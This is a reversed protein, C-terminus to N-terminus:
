KKRSAKIFKNVSKAMDSADFYIRDTTTIGNKDTYNSSMNSYIGAKTVDDYWEYEKGALDNSKRIAVLEASYKDAAVKLRENWDSIEKETLTTQKEFLGAHKAAELAQKYNKYVESKLVQANLDRLKDETMAKADNLRIQSEDLRKRVENVEVTSANMSIISDNLAISSKAQSEIFTGQIKANETLQKLNNTSAVLNDKESPTLEIIRDAEANGKRSGAFKEMAGAVTNPDFLNALISAPNSMGLLSASSAPSGVPSSSGSVSTGGYMLAPNVGAQVMDQVQRQYATNSMQEEWARNKEAEKANFANQEAMLKENHKQTATTTTATIIGALVVGCLSLFATLM